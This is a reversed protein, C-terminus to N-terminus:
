AARAAGWAASSYARALAEDSLAAGEDRVAVLGRAIAARGRRLACHALLRREESDNLDVVVELSADHLELSAVDLGEDGADDVRRALVDGRERRSAAAAAGDLRM